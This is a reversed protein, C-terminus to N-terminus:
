GGIGVWKTVVDGNDMVLDILGGIQFAVTIEAIRIYLKKDSIYAVEIDNADYFSLKESIFRAYKRFVTEGNVDVTQGVEVGYVPVGDDTKYLEGTRIYGETQLITNKLYEFSTNIDDISGQLQSKAGELLSNVGTVSDQVSKINEKIREKSDQLDKNVDAIANDTDILGQSIGAVSGNTDDIRGNLESKATDIDDSLETKTNDINESLETKTAELTEDLAIVEGEVAAVYGDLEEVNSNITIIDNQAYSLDQGITVIDGEISGIKSDQETIIVQINEFRQTTSTSNEEIKQSTKEAYDGFDSQAVYIGELKRNIEEYYANVIDASKIILSKIANFTVQANTDNMTPVPTTSKATPIVVPSSSAGGNNVNELAWQLQPILQYLYSRMKELKQADSGSIDPLRLDVSM